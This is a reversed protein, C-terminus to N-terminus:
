NSRSPRASTRATCKDRASFTDTASSIMNDITGIAIADTTIMAALGLGIMLGALLTRRKNRFLNRWALKLFLMM